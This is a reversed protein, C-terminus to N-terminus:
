VNKKERKVEKQVEKVISRLAKANPEYYSGSTYYKNRNAVGELQLHLAMGSAFTYLGQNNLYIAITTVTYKNLPHISGIQKALDPHSVIRRWVEHIRGKYQPAAWEAIRSVYRLVEHEINIECEAAPRIYLRGERAARRLATINFDEPRVEQLKQKM